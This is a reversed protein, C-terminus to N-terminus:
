VRDQARSGAWTPGGDHNAEGPLWPGRVAVAAKLQDVAVVAQVDTGDAEGVDDVVVVVVVETRCAEAGEREYGVEPAEVAEVAATALRRPNLSTMTSPSPRPLSSLALPPLSVGPPVVAPVFFFRLRYGGTMALRHCGGLKLEAPKQQCPFCHLHLTLPLMQIPEAIGLSSGLAGGDVRALKEPEVRVLAGALSNPDLHHATHRKLVQAYYRIALVLCRRTGHPNALLVVLGSKILDVLDRVVQSTWSELRRTVALVQAFHVDVLCGRVKQAPVVPVLGIREDNAAALWM